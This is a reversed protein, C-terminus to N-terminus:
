HSLKELSDLSKNRSIIEYVKEKNDVTEYTIDYRNIFKGEQKKEIKKFQM